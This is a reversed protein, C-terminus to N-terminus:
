CDRFSISYYSKIGSVLNWLQFNVYLYNNSYEKNRLQTSNSGQM